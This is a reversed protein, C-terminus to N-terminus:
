LQKKVMLINPIVDQLQDQSRSLLVYANSHLQCKRATPNYKFSCVDSLGNMNQLLHKKFSALLFPLQM